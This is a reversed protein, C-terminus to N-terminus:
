VCSLHKNATMLVDTLKIYHVNM